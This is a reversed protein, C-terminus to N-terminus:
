RAERDPVLTAIVDSLLRNFQAPDELMPFHGVGSAIVTEVGYARLSEVDTPEYDPNIAVVPVALGPLARMVPGDNTFAHYLADLAIHPPAASMDEAIALVLDAAADPPFMGAVLSRTAQVFDRRFPEM